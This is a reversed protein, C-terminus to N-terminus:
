TLRPPDVAESPPKVESNNLSPTSKTRTFVSNISNSITNSVATTFGELLGPIIPIQLDSSQAGIEFDNFCQKVHELSRYYIEFHVLNYNPLYYYPLSENLSPILAELSKHMAGPETSTQLKPCPLNKFLKDAIPINNLLGKELALIISDKDGLDSLKLLTDRYETRKTNLQINKEEVRTKNANKNILLRKEKKLARINEKLVNTTERLREIHQEFETQVSTKECTHGAKSTIRLIDPLFTKLAELKKSEEEIHNINDIKAIQENTIVAIDQMKDTIYIFRNEEFKIYIKGKEPKQNQILSSMLVLDYKVPTLKEIIYTRIAHITACLISDQTRSVEGLEYLLNICNGLTSLNQFKTNLLICLKSKDKQKENWCAEAQGSLSNWSAERLSIYHNLFATLVQSRPLSM